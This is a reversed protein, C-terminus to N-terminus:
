MPRVHKCAMGHKNRGSSLVAQRVGFSDPSASYINVNGSSSTGAYTGGKPNLSVAWAQSSSVTQLYPQSHPSVLNRVRWQATMVRMCVSSPTPHSIGCVPPVMWVTICYRTATPPFPSPFSPSITRHAHSPSKVRPPTGNNSPAMQLLPSSQTPQQGPSTGYKTATPQTSNLTDSPPQDPRSPVCVNKAISPTSLPSVRITPSNVLQNPHINCPCSSGHCIITLNEHKRRALKLASLSGLRM